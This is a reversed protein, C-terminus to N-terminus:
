QSALNFVPACNRSLMTQLLTLNFQDCVTCAHMYRFQLGYLLIFQQLISTCLSTPTDGSSDFQCASYTCPCETLQKTLINAHM